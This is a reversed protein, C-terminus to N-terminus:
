VDAALLLPEANAPMVAFVCHIFVVRPNAMSMPRNKRIMGVSAIAPESARLCCTGGDTPVNGVSM